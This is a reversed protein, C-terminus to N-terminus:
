EGRKRARREFVHFVILIAVAWVGILVDGLQRLTWYGPCNLRELYAAVVILVIIIAMLARM